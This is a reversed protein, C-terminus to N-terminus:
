ISCLFQNENIVNAMNIKTTFIRLDDEYKPKYNETKILNM